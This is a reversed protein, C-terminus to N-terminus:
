LSSPGRINLLRSDRPRLSISNGGVHSTALSLMLMSQIGHWKHGPEFVLHNIKILSTNIFTMYTWSFISMTKFRLGLCSSKQEFHILAKVQLSIVNFIINFHKKLGSVIRFCAFIQINKLNGSLMM